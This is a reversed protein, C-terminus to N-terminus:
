GTMGVKKSARGVESQCSGATMMIFAPQGDADIEVDMELNELAKKGAVREIAARQEQVERRAAARARALDRDQGKPANPLQAFRM